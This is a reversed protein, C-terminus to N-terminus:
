SETKDYVKNNAKGGDIVYSYTKPELEAFETIIKAGLENNM